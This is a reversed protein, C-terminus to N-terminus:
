MKGGDHGDQWVQLEDWKGDAALRSQVPWSTPDRTKYRSGAEALIEKIKGVETSDLAEFTSIGNTTLLEAIKPGIGEIKKLDDPKGEAKKALSKSKTEVKVSSKVKAKAKAPTSNDADMQQKLQSFVDLEGLTAREVKSQTSKISKRTENREIRKEEKITNDAEKQIDDHYRTHSVIIRKDDRNFEIVKFTLTEDAGASSGDEKRLHKIPAYAELGYPLQVVGGRDNKKIITAEHYSGVPFVNEFTDWPNEELQKHGLSLKRSDQDVELITVDITEGVKTFESPHSYRKTWSLDSIHVM